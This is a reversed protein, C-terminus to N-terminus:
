APSVVIVLSTVRSTAVVLVFVCLVPAATSPATVTVISVTTTIIIPTAIIITSTRGVLIPATVVFITAVVIIPSVTAPVARIVLLVFSGFSVVVKLYVLNEETKKKTFLKQLYLCVFGGVRILVHLFVLMILLVMLSAAPFKLPAPRAIM